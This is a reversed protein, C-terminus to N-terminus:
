GLGSAPVEAGLRLWPGVKEMATRVKEYLQGVNGAENCIPITVSLMRRPGYHCVRAGQLARTALTGTAVYTFRM